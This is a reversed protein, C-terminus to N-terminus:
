IIGHINMLEVINKFAYIDAGAAYNNGLHYTQCAAKCQLFIKNMIKELEQDVEEFSWKLRMANQTMELASVAVGGANAAKGPAWTFDNTQNYIATADTNSPMNAGEILYRIGNQIINQAQEGNIENQTACPLAIDAKISRSWVSEKSFIAHPYKIVYNAFNQENTANIEAIIKLDIGESDYISGTINSMAIVQGGLQQAKQAAYFAVNGAGSIIIKKGKLTEQDEKLVENAFYVVGYGTAETRALSGNASVPKGTLPGLEVGKLRKYQGLMYGIERHGVGIDGAPVDQKESIYKSLETMFSQCFRMIENDSKGRPNFDAGGKGGGIPLNTLSNKFTQEFALFKLVSENVSPDFRLGGKYPGLLSSHQVRFGHNIHVQGNDDLWPVRFSIIREPTVLRELIAKSEYEPHSDVIPEIASFFEQIAQLYETQHGFKTQLEQYVRNMYNNKIM